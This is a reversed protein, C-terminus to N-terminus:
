ENPICIKINMTLTQKIQEDVSIIKLDDNALPRHYAYLRYACESDVHM